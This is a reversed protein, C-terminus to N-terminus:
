LIVWFDLIWFLVISLLLLGVVFVVWAPKTSQKEEELLDLGEDDSWDREPYERPDLDDFDDDRVPM